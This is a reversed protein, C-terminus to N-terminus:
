SPEKRRWLNLGTLGLLIAALTTAQGPVPVASIDEVLFSGVNRISLGKNVTDFYETVDLQSDPGNGLYAFVSLTSVGATFPNHPNTVDFLGTTDYSPFSIGGGIHTWGLESGLTFADHELTAYGPQSANGALVINVTGDPNSAVPLGADRYMQELQEQTAFRWGDRVYNSNVNNAVEDYSLGMTKTLDLWQLRTAPDYTVSGQDVLISSARAPLSLLLPIAAIAALSVYKFRFMAIEMGILAHLYYKTKRKPSQSM